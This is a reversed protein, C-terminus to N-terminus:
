VRTSNQTDVRPAANLGKVDVERAYYFYSDPESKVNVGNIVIGLVHQGSQTLFEKAAEAHTADVTGPRVVLLVGDGMKGLVAADATGSLPPTDFIVADYEHSFDAVLAAMRKSELLAVPNPPIVGAPLVHLNPLVEQIVAKPAVQEVIINSLGASNTLGWIHHQVPRRMDADVLLVRRGSQAMATALNASVESKGEKPISSTIVVTRLAKDSSLFRLNAQLMRYAESIPSRPIDRTIVSPIAQDFKSSRLQMKESGSIAPIIGLVTYGFLEKTERVTKVSRDVLDIAFAAALALLLGLFGGAAVILKKSPGSPDEPVTPPSVIRANGINQNEAVQIEQLRTLLTEYTSQAAQLKRQLENQVQELRPIANARNRYAEQTSTLANLRGAAGLRESEATVLDGVLDQRVTGLQLNGTSVQQNGVVDAIRQQLLSQLASIRRKLNDITPHGDRYRTQAVSLDRQAEQYQTLVDQVGTAESLTSLAVAQQPNLGIRSQLQQARGTADMLEGRAEAIQEELNGIVEVASTAEDTLSIVKNQEKFQRLALDAERVAAETRPLQSVIFDRAASTEARNSQINNKLYTNMIESVVSAAQQPDDGQYTVQLVDTGPIGKITLQKALVEPQMLEGESDKLDLTRIAEELVPISRVVEAQTDLPNNQFGLAELQGINEGVGTLAPTRNSEFLLTGTAEYSPKRTLAYLSAVSVVVGFVGIAPLWRRKLVLWYKHFDIEESYDRREVPM